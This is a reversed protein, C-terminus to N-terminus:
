ARFSRKINDAGQRNRGRPRRGGVNDQSPRKREVDAEDGEFITGLQRNNRIVNNQSVRGEDEAPSDGNARGEGQEPEDAEPIPDLKTRPFSKGRLKGRRPQDNTTQDQPSQGNSLNDIELEPLPVGGGKELSAVYKKWKRRDSWWGRFSSYAKRRPKALVMLIQDRCMKQELLEAAYTDMPAWKADEKPVNEVDKLDKGLKALKKMAPKPCQPRDPKPVTGRYKEPPEDTFLNIWNEEAVMWKQESNYESREPRSPLRSELTGACVNLPAFFDNWVHRALDRDRKQQWVEKSPRSPLHDNLADTRMGFKEIKSAFNAPPLHVACGEGAKDKAGQLHLESEGLREKFWERRKDYDAILDELTPHSDPQTNGGNGSKPKGIKPKSGMTGERRRKPDPPWRGEPEWEWFYTTGIARGTEDVDYVGYNFFNQMYFTFQDETTRWVRCSKVDLNFEQPLQKIVGVDRTEHLNWEFPLQELPARPDPSEGM